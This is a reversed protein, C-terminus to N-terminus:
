ILFKVSRRMRRWAAVLAENREKLKTEAWSPIVIRISLTSVPHILAFIQPFFPSPKKFIVNKFQPPLSPV